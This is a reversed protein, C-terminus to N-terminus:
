QVPYTSRWDKRKNAIRRKAEFYEEPIGSKGIKKESKEKTQLEANRKREKGEAFQISRKIHKCEKEETRRKASELKERKTKNTHFYSLFRRRERRKVVFV